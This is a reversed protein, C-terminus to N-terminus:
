FNIPQCKRGCTLPQGDLINKRFNLLKDGNWIDELKQYHLNGMVNDFCEAFVEYNYDMYLVKWPLFCKIPINNKSVFINKKVDEIKETKVDKKSSFDNNQKSDFTLNKEIKNEKPINIKEKVEFNINNLNNNKVVMLPLNYKIIKLPIYYFLKINYDEAKKLLVDKVKNFKSIVENKININKEYKDFLFSLQTMKHKKCFDLVDEFNENINDKSIVYQMFLKMNNNEIKERFENILNIKDLLIDFKAGTRIYEYTKKYISDISLTLEVDYKVIKEAFKKTILTGNTTILQKIKYKYAEDLLSEFQPHLFAEGGTWIVVELYPFFKKIECLKDELIDKKIINDTQQVCMRCKLNCRNTISLAMTRPFSNLKIKREYIEYENLLINKRRIDILNNKQYALKKYRILSEGKSNKVTMDQIIEDILTNISNAYRDKNDSKRLFSIVIENKKLFLLSNIILDDIEKDSLLRCKKIYLLVRLMKFCNFQEKYIKSLFILSNINQPDIKLIERFETIAQSYKKTIYLLKAYEFKFDLRFIVDDNNKLLSQIFEYTEEYKGAIINAKIQEVSDTNM